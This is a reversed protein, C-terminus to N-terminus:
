ETKPKNLKLLDELYDVKREMYLIYVFSVSVIIICLGTFYLLLNQTSNIYNLITALKHNFFSEDKLALLVVGNADPNVEANIVYREGNYGRYVTPSYLWEALYVKGNEDKAYWQSYHGTDNYSKIVQDLTYEIKENDKPFFVLKKVDIKNNIKKSNDYLVDGTSTSLMYSHTVGDDFQLTSGTKRAWTEILENTIPEDQEYVFFELDDKAENLDNRVYTRTYEEQEIIIDKKYKQLGNSMILSLIIMIASTIILILNFLNDKIFRKKNRETSM